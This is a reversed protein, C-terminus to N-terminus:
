VGDEQASLRTELGYESSYPRDVIALNDIWETVQWMGHLQRASVPVLLGGAREPENKLLERYEDHFAKPLVEFGDFMDRFMKKMAEDAEMFPRCGRLVESEFQSMSSRLATEWNAGLEGGYIHDLMGQIALEDLGQGDWPELASIALQVLHQDYVPCDPIARSVFVPKLGRTNPGAQRNIRGFRQLLAELPAPDSFLADFDVNLSVEVVQTAVLVASSKVPRDAPRDVGRADALRKEKQMRDQGNFRGHLLEVQGPLRSRLQRYVQKARDVTTAVVLPSGGSEVFHIIRATVADSLLDDDMLHVEHRRFSRRLEATAELVKLSTFQEALLASLRRPFTASMFFFRAGHDNALHRCLALIRGLRGADYAHLEDLVFCSGAADTWIAEQGRLGFAAGLWPYPSMVRIPLAHLRALSAANRTVRQADAQGYGKDMAQAYLAQLSRSHHLAVLDKGLTRELRLKMANMSAQFPLSYFLNAAHTIGERQRWYWLLAAETKGSGTPAILVANGNHNSADKQHDYWKNPPLFRPGELASRLDELALGELRKRASASHDAMMLAGRLFRGEIMRSNPQELSGIYEHCNEIAEQIAAWAESPPWDTALGATWEMPFAGAASEVQTWIRETLLLRAKALWDSQLQKSIIPDPQEVYYGSHIRPWSKHHTLISAGVRARDVADPVIWRIAAASFVEHRLGFRDAKGHVVDQFGPCCKGLDHLAAALFIRPWFRPEDILKGLDGTRDRLALLNDVVELTHATLTLGSSEGKAPSKAWTEADIKTVLSPM